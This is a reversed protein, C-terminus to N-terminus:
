RVRDFSHTPPPTVHLMGSGDAPFSRTWHGTFDSRCAQLATGDIRASRLAFREWPGNDDNHDFYALWEMLGDSTWSVGGDFSVEGGGYLPLNVYPSWVNVAV